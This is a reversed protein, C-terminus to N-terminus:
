NNNAFELKKRARYDRQYQIKRQHYEENAYYYERKYENYYERKNKQNKKNKNIIEERHREYYSQTYKLQQKSSKRPQEKTKIVRPEGGVSKNYCIDRYKKIYHQELAQSEEQNLNDIIITHEFCDWGYELIDDYFKKNGKYGLGKAWRVEPKQSTAGIYVKGNIKNKHMYVCFIRENM